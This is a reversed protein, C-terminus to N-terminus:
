ASTDRNQALWEEFEGIAQEFQARYLSGAGHEPRRVAERYLNLTREIWVRTAARGDRQLLFAIRGAESGTNM